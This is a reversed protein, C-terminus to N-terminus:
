NGFGGDRDWEVLAEIAVQVNAVWRIALRNEYDVLCVIGRHSQSLANLCKRENGM